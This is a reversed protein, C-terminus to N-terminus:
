AVAETAFRTLDVIVTERKVNAQVIVVKCMGDKVIGERFIALADIQEDDDFVGAFQLADQLAKIRNDCDFKRKNPPYLSAFMALRGYQKIGAEAFIAAVRERYKRGQESLYIRHGARRYYVNSSPPWPLTLAIM